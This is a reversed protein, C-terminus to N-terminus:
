DKLWFILALLGLTIALTNMTEKSGTFLRTTKTVVPANIIEDKLDDLKHAIEESVPFTHDIGNMVWYRWGDHGRM